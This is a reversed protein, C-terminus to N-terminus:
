REKEYDNCSCAYGMTSQKCSNKQLIWSKKRLPVINKMKRERGRQRFIGEKSDGKHFYEAMACYFLTFNYIKGVFIRGDKNEFLFENRELLDM